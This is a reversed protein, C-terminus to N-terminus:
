SSCSCMLGRGQRPVDGCWREADERDEKDWEERYPQLALRMVRGLVERDGKNQVRDIIEDLVWGRPLFNPNVGKMAEIREKDSTAEEGWDELIRERWSALWSSVREAASDTTEGLATIGERHFFIKATDRRKEETDIHALTLSSLRRFFHNFDLELKELTDLLDSILVDIDSQKQTKLGCRARMLRSYESTFVAKYEHGAAEILTEARKILEPAFEESVGKEFVETDVQPGAGILEGMDEGLRVLNWWIITPQNRYSYRLLHDDHNPTYSPDFNDMFAFPGYDLSLGFISTNDTNLVGNMFGFCQWKAVTLANRRVIERYLRAYRNEEAGAPGQIADKPVDRPPDLHSSEDESLFSRLSKWGPFVDEAVYDALRRILKRDGRSRLLDFSGIRLWSEAFRAVIAGPERTERLVTAKPTLTLSLARTTPIRLANLAESVVYERISSRLVAKGDAFRSYPTRGAGKLQLEYRIGTEPNTTEFLSIARGDGLQGAWSGFQWGAYAQAWPYSGASDESWYIKNGAVLDLFEQTQVEDDHLGLDEMARSSVGLLEPEDATEPKIYTFLADRVMRPGLKQRPARDSDAPTPFAPDAPLKSTFNHSKPLEALTSRARIATSGAPQGNRLESAM